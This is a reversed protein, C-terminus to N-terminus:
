VGGKILEGRAPQLLVGARVDEKLERALDGSSRTPLICFPNIGAIM